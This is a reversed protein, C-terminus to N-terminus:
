AGGPRAGRRPTGRPGGRVVEVPPEGVVSEVAVDLVAEARRRADAQSGYLDPHAHALVARVRPGPLGLPGSTWRVQDIAWRLAALSSDTGDVGVVVPAPGAARGADPDGGDASPDTRDLHLEGAAVRRLVDRRGVIGFARM